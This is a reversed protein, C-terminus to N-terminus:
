SMTLDLLQSCNHDVNKQQMRCFNVSVPQNSKVAWHILGKVLTITVGGGEM